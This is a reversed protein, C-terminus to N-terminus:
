PTSLFLEQRLEVFKKNEGQRIIEFTVRGFTAGTLNKFIAQMSWNRRLEWTVHLEQKREDWNWTSTQQDLECEWVMAAVERCSPTPRVGPKVWRLLHHLRQIFDHGAEPYNHGRRRSTEALAHVIQWRFDQAAPRVAARADDLGPFSFVMEGQTPVQLAMVWTADDKFAADFSFVWSEEAIELRAKGEGVLRIKTAFSQPGVDSVPAMHTCGIFTILLLFHWRGM